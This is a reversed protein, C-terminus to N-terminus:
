DGLGAVAPAKEGKPIRLVQIYTDGDRFSYWVDGQKEHRTAQHGDVIIWSPLGRDDVTPSCAYGCFTPGSSLEAASPPTGQQIVTSQAPEWGRHALYATFKEVREVFDAIAKSDDDPTFVLEVPFGAPTQTNITATAM